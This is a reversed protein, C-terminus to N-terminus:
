WGKRMYGATSWAALGGAVYYSAGAAVPCVSCFAGFGFAAAGSAVLRLTGRVFGGGAVDELESEDLEDTTASEKVKLIEKLGDAFMEEVEETSFEFGNDNLVKTLSAADEAGVFAKCFDNNENVAEVLKRALMEKKTQEM